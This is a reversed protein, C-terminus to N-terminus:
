ELTNCIHLIYKEKFFSARLIEDLPSKTVRISPYVEKLSAIEEALDGGKLCVLGPKWHKKKDYLYGSAVRAHWSWLKVLPATARSVSYHAQGDWAEARGHWAQFNKLGLERAMAKVAHIKKGVADIAVFNVEPFTIALPIAPLGGGTGWDVVTCSAPFGKQGIVLCHEIHREEIHEVTGPSILNLKRTYHSLLSAYQKLQSGRKQAFSETENRMGHQLQM